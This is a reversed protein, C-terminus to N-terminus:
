SDQRSFIWAVEADPVVDAELVVQHTRVLGFHASQRVSEEIRAEAREWVLAWVSGSKLTIRIMTHERAPEAEAGPALHFRIICRGHPAHAGAAVMRDQGVLTKGGSILTLRREIRVGFADRWGASQMALAAGSAEALVSPETGAGRLLGAMPGIEAISGASRDDITVGSHAVGERFMATREFGNTPPPGCNGVVLDHGHSFEFALASAHAARAYALPPVVGSDAIVVSQGEVLVGYGGLTGTGRRRETSQGQVAHVLDLPLQGCGNFYAPEGTGLMLTDLARHMDDLRASLRQAMEPHSGSLAQRVTVLHTLLMLQVCPNRTRHLGDGDVQEVLLRQLRAFWTEVESSGGKSSVAVALLAIVALMEAVPDTIFRVRIKLSDVQASLARLIVREQEPAAEDLILGIHRLWNLVRKATLGPEWARRDFRGYRGIWDLVLVLAFRREGEDTVDRFHRLWSFSQLDEFWDSHDVDISFPSVGGTEVIKAALLYRGAMMERVTERDSPRFDSLTSFYQEDSFGTWTWRALPSTVARDALRYAYQGVLFRWVDLM